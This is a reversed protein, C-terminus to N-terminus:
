EGLASLERRVLNDEPKKHLYQRLCQKYEEVKGLAGYSRGMLLWAETLGPEMNLVEECTIVADSHNSLDKQIAALMLGVRPDPTREMGEKLVKFAKETYGKKLLLRSYTKVVDVDSPILLYANNLAKEAANEKGDLKLLAKGLELWVRGVHPNNKCIKKFDKVAKEPQGLEMHLKGRQFLAEEFVDEHYRVAKEYAKLAGNVDNKMKKIQGLEFWALPYEERISVANLISEEADELLDLGNLIHGKYYHALYFDDKISIAADFCIMSEDYQDMAYLALGKGCLAHINEPDIELSRDFFDIAKEYRKRDLHAIGINSLCLSRIRESPYSNKFDNISQEHKELNYWAVGRNLHAEHMNADIAIALDYNQIALAHDGMEEYVNGLNFFAEKPSPVLDVSRKFVEVCKEYQGLEKLTLGLGILAQYKVNDDSTQKEAALFYNHASRLDKRRLARYGKLILPDTM